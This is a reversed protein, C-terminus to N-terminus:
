LDSYKTARLEQTRNTAPATGGYSLRKVAAPRAIEQRLSKVSDALANVTQVLENKVEDTMGSEQLQDPEMELDFLATDLGLRQYASKLAAVTTRQPEASSPM